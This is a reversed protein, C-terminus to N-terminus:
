GYAYETIEPDYCENTDPDHSENFDPDYYADVLGWLHEERAQDIAVRPLGEYRKHCKVCLIVM